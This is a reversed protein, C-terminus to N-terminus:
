RELGLMHKACYREQEYRKAVGDQVHQTSKSFYKLVKHGHENNKTASREDYIADIIDADGLKKLDKHALARSILESHPGHQIAVSWVVDRLAASRSSVDLGFDHKLKAVLPEYNKASIFNHQLNEFNINKALETWASKFKQDGKLASDIGGAEDLKKASDPSKIKAFALFNKM